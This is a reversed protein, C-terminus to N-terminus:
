CKASKQFEENQKRLWSVEHKLKIIEQELERRKDNEEVDALTKLVGESIAAVYYRAKELPVKNDRHDGLANLDSIIIPIFDTAAKQLAKPNGGMIIKHWDTTFHRAHLLKELSLADTTCIESLHKSLSQFEHDLFMKFPPVTSGYTGQANGM